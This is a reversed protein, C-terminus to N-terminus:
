AAVEMIMVQIRGNGGSYAVNSNGNFRMTGSGGNAGAKLVIDRASTSGAAFKFLGTQHGANHSGSYASADASGSQAGVFTGGQWCSIWGADAFNSTEHFSVSGTQVVITSDSATPTFSQTLWTVGTNINGNPTGHSTTTFAGEKMAFVVQLIKGGVDTGWEPDNAGMKLVQGASGKALRADASAGRYIIDGRTTTPSGAAGKALYAWSAHATGGSSPANGTSAATCIYSSTIATDTYEVVDDPVYATGGAYTGRWVLKIKGLDITAM